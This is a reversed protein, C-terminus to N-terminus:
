GRIVHVKFERVLGDMEKELECIVKDTLKVNNRRIISGFRRIRQGEIRRKLKGFKQELPDILNIFESFHLGNNAIVKTPIRLNERQMNKKNVTFFPNMHNDLYQRDHEGSSSKEKRETQLGRRREDEEEAYNDDGYDQDDDDDEIVIIDEGSTDEEGYDQVDNTDDNDAYDLVTTDESYTDEENCDQVDSIEEDLVIINESSRDEDGYYQDDIVGDNLVTIDDDSCKDDEGDSVHEIEKIQESSRLKKCTEHGFICFNFCRSGDFEFELFEGGKLGVNKVIKKWGHVMVLREIDGCCKRFAMKWINGCISRVIVNKPLSSPLFTNFSIPLELDDGSEDPLYVKFFKPLRDDVSN